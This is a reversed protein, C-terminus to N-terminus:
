VYALSFALLFQSFYYLPLGILPNAFSKSVFQERVVFLDSLYFGTAGAAVLLGGVDPIASNMSVGWAAVVMCSIIVMYATVPLLMTGLFPRLWILVAVDILLIVMLPMLIGIEISLLQFFAAIYLLHGLLFATLGALFFTRGEPILFVDGLLCFVFGIVMLFHFLAWDQINLLAIVVFVLSLAPKTIWIGSVSSRKKALLLGALLFFAILLLFNVLLM